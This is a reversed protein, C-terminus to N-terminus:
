KGFCVCDPARTAEHVFSGPPYRDLIEALRREADWPEGSPTSTLDAWALAAAALRPRPYFEVALDEDLGYLRAEAFSETHRAVLRCTETAGGHDPM